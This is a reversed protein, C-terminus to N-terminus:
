SSPHNSRSRKQAPASLPTPPQTQKAVAGGSGLSASGGVTGSNGTGATGGNVTGSTGRAPNASGPAAVPGNGISGMVTDYRDSDAPQDMQRQAQPRIACRCTEQGQLIRLRCNHYMSADAVAPVCQQGTRINQADSSTGFTLFLAASSLALAYSRKM